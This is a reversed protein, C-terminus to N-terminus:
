KFFPHNRDTRIVDKLVLRKAATYQSLDVDQQTAYLQLRAPTHTTHTHAHVGLYPPRLSCLPSALEPM